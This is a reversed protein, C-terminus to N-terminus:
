DSVPESEGESLAGVVDCLSLLAFCVTPCRNCVRTGDDFPRCLSVFACVSWTLVVFSRRCAEGTLGGTEGIFRTPESGFSKRSPDVVERLFFEDCVASRRLRDCTSTLRGLDVVAILRELECVFTLLDDFRV